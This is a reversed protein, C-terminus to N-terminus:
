RSEPLLPKSQGLMHLREELAGLRRALDAIHMVSVASAATAAAAKSEAVLIEERARVHQELSTLRDKLAQIEGAQAELIAGHKRELQFLRDVARAGDLLSLPNLSM